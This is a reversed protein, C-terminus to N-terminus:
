LPVTVSAVLVAASVWFTPRIAVVAASADDALGDTDPAGTVKVAVTVLAPLGTAVPITLKATSPMAVPHAKACASATKREDNGSNRGLRCAM